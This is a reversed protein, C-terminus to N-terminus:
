LSEPPTWGLDELAHRVTADTTDVVLKKDNKIDYVIAGDPKHHVELYYEIDEPRLSWTEPCYDEKFWVM